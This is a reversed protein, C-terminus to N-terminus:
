QRALADLAQALGRFSIPLQMDRGVADKYSIRGQGTESRWRRVAAEPSTNEAFCGVPLCRRWNLDISDQDKDGIGIKVSGPFLVNVPLVVVLRVPDTSSSRGFAIQATPAPQNQLQVTQVAECIRQAKEPAPKECRLTWDGFAATTVSPDAGVPPPINPKTQAQASGVLVLLAIPFLTSSRM